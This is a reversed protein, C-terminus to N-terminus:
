SFNGVLQYIPLLISLAIAGVLLGMILLLLPELVSTLDKLTNEVEEDYFDALTILIDGLTGTKEGVSVLSRLISPFLEPYRELAHSLPAGNKVEEGAKRLAQEYTTNGVSDAAIELAELASIGHKILNGFTRTFRVLALKRILEKAIPTHALMRGGIMRGTATRKLAVLLFFLSGLVLADLLISYTLANSLGIFIKTLLPLKVGSTLFATALRPLVFVLLLTVVGTSAILLVLPYVLASKVRQRLSYEKRLFQALSELTPALEGSIEGARLMGIFAVPFSNRYPEFAISLTQGNKIASLVGLLMRRMVGKTADAVLIDLSEVVTLGAKLGTAMNRVLFLIDVSTLREFFAFSLNIGSGGRLPVISVPTLQRKLLSTAVEDKTAAEFEGRVPAGDKNYAEYIFTSM